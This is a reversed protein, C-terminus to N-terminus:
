HYKSNRSMPRKLYRDTSSNMEMIEEFESDIKNRRSNVKKMADRVQDTLENDEEFDYKVNRQNRNTDVEFDESETSGFIRSQMRYLDSSNIDSQQVIFGDETLEEDLDELDEDDDDDDEDDVQKKKKSDHEKTKNKDDDKKKNKSDHNKKENRQNKKGTEYPTSTVPSMESTASFIDYEESDTFEEPSTDNAGGAMKNNKYNVNKLWANTIVPEPSTASISMVSPNIPNQTVEVFHRVCNCNGKCDHDPMNKHVTFKEKNGCVILEIFKPNESVPINEYPDTGYYESIYPLTTSGQELYEIKYPKGQMVRNYIDDVTVYEKSNKTNNSIVYSFQDQKKLNDTKYQLTSNNNGM